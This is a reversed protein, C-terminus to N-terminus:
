VHAKVLKRINGIDLYSSLLLAAILTLIVAFLTKKLYSVMVSKDSSGGHTNTFDKIFPMHYKKCLGGIFTAISPNGVFYVTTLKPSRM